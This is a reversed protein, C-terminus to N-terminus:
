FHSIGDLWNEYEKQVAPDDLPNAQRIRKLEQTIAPLDGRQLADWLEALGQEAQEQSPERDDENM